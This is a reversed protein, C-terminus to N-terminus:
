NSKDCFKIHRATVQTQNCFPCKEFRKQPGRKGKMNKSMKAKTEDSHTKGSMGAKHGKKSESFKKKIEDARDGYREELTKGKYLNRLKERKELSSTQLGTKGKNWPTRGRNAERIKERMEETYFRNKNAEAIAKRAVEYQRSTLVREQLPSSQVFKGVANLMKKRYFTGEVCKTLLWHCVFHERATLEVLNDKSDKGGMSKPVIHHREKYGELSRNKANEVILDYWKKYKNDIFM